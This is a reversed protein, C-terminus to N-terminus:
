RSAAMAQKYKDILQQMGETSDNHRFKYNRELEQRMQPLIPEFRGDAEMAVIAQAYFAILRDVQAEVRKLAADRAPGESARYELSLTEYEENALNLLALFTNPDASKLEVAKELHARAAKKDGDRYALIGAAQYALPLSKAKYGPWQAADLVAPRKDAELLEIARAAHQRGQKVYKLDGRVAENLALIALNKLIDVDDPDAALYATSADFADQTRNSNIYAALLIRDVRAAEGPQNFLVRYTEALSAQLQNDTVAGVQGAVYEAVKSRLAGQPYKKLYEAAAQLKAEAGQAKEVKETAKMEDRSVKPGQQKADQKEQRAGATGTAAGAAEGAAVATACVCAALACASLIRSKM